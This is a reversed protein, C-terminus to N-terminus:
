LDIPPDFVVQGGTSIICIDLTPRMLFAGNPTGVDGTALNVETPAAANDFQCDKKPNVGSVMDHRFERYCNGPDAIWACLSDLAPESSCGYAVAAAAFPVAALAFLFSRRM